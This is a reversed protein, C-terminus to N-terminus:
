VNRDIYCFDYLLYLVDILILRSYYSNNMYIRINNYFFVINDYKIYKKM